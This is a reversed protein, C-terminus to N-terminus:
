HSKVFRQNRAKLGDGIRLTYLGDALDAVPITLTRDQAPVNALSRVIRGNMDIITVTTTRSTRDMSLNLLDTVPNPWLKLKDPGAERVTTSLDEISFTAANTHVPDNFDFYISASNWVTAGPLLFNQPKMQFVVWGHSNPEDSTSDPLMINDFRFELLGNGLQAHCPHSSAIFDFSYPRLQLPLMDTIRINEAPFTGTNQFRITYTVPAANAVDQATLLEPTVQIDNPDYAGVVRPLVGTTDNEPDADPPTTQVNASYDVTTGLPVSPPTYLWLHARFVEGLGLVPMQWTLTSGNLTGVPEGNSYTQQPDIELSLIGDTLQSGENRCFVWLENYFGPRPNRASLYVALDTVSATANMALEHGGSTIGPGSLDTVMVPAALTDFSGTAATLQYTAPTVRFYFMGSANSISYVPGWGAQILRNQIPLDSGGFVGDLDVDLFVRGAISDSWGSCYCGYEDVM